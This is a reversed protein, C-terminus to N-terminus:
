FCPQIGLETPKTKKFEQVDQQVFEWQGNANLAGLFPHLPPFDQPTNLLPCQTKCLNEYLFLFCSRGWPLSCCGTCVAGPFPQFPTFFPCLLERSFCSLFEAAALAPHIHPATLIEVHVGPTVSATGPLGGLGELVDRCPPLPDRGPAARPARM